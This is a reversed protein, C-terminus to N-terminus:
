YSVTVDLPFFMRRVSGLSRYKEKYNLLAVYGDVVNSYVKCESVVLSQFDENLVGFNNYM